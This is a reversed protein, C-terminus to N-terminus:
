ALLHKKAREVVQRAKHLRDRDVAPKKYVSKIAKYEETLKSLLGGEDLHEDGRWVGRDFWKPYWFQRFHAITFDSDLASKGLGSGVDLITQLGMTGDDVVPKTALQWLGSGMDANLLLQEPSFTKGCDLLESGGRPPIGTFHSVTLAELTKEYAAQIGPFKASTYDAWGAVGLKLGYRRRFLEVYGCDILMTEPTCFSTNATKMDLMGSCISASQPGTYGLSRQAVFAAITEAAGLVITGAISAPASGGAVPQTGIWCPLGRRTKEKTLGAARRDM